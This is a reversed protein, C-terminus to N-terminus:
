YNFNLITTLLTKFESYSQRVTIASGSVLHIICHEGTNDPYFGEINRIVVTGTRWEYNAAPEEVPINLKNFLEIKEAEDPSTNSAKCSIEVELLM